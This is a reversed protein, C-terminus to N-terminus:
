FLNLQRRATMDFLGFDLPQQPQSPILPAAARVALRERLPVPSVGPLLTQEGEPTPESFMPATM